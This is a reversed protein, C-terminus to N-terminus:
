PDNEVNSIGVQIFADRLAKVFQKWRTIKKKQRASSM